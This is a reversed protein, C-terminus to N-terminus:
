RILGALSLATLLVATMAFAVAIDKRIHPYMASVM